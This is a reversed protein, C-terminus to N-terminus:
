LIRMIEKWGSVRLYSDDKICINHPQTFIIKKGDFTRLNKPHDDIMIDGKISDKRGCFIMQEWSIFPFHENLWQQKEILSNPFETASSVVLVRYKNNLYRLGEISDPMLPPTRFFGRSEVHKRFTPLEEEKKGNLEEQKLKIGSHAYELAIFQAYVDAIVGDMDVLIQQKM